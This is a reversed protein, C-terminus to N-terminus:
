ARWFRSKFKLLLKYPLCILIMTRLLGWWSLWDRADFLRWQIKLRSFLQRQRKQYSISPVGAAVEYRLWVAPLNAAKGLKLLRSFFEYDEAAPFQNSYGDAAQVAAARLMVAPHCFASNIHLYRRIEADNCPYRLTFRDGEAENFSTAWSGVMVHDPHALLFDRQAALRGPLWLDGADIRAIFKHGDTLIKAIGANLAGEIGSNTELRILHVPFDYAVPHLLLAPDSGDDVLYLEFAEREGRLSELTRALGAPYNYYPMLIAVTM